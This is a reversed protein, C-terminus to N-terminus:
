AKIKLQEGPRLFVLGNITMVFVLDKTSMM